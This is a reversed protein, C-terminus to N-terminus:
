RFLGSLNKDATTRSGIAVWPWTSNRFIFFISNSFPLLSADESAERGARMVRKRVPLM